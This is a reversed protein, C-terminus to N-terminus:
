GPSPSANPNASILYTVKANAVSGSVGPPYPIAVQFTANSTRGTLDVPPLTINHV